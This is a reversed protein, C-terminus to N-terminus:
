TSDGTGEHSSEETEEAHTDERERWAKIVEAERAASLGSRRIPLSEDSDTEGRYVAEPGLRAQRDEPLTKFWDVTDRATEALPRFKLGAAVAKESSVLGFGEYGDAPAVWVPMHQWGHVGHKALFETDAWVFTADNWTAAKCGHLLEAITFRGAPTVTSFIGTINEELCRIVFAALDRVDIYQVPDDGSGPALVEGGRDIRVPWYTFRDTTDGPGVILGPRIVTVRGPMADEAAKECLAKLPGYTVGNVDKREYTMGDLENGDEDLLRGVPYTEDAYPTSHDAFASVSSIFVYQKVHDALLEASDKVNKPAYGSTDIVADWERGKLAELDGARDGVLKELEPFLHTNTRGRNFLTMSHGRALAAEVIHPGLFGTGGLILLNLKVDAEEPEAAPTIQAVGTPCIGILAIALMVILALRFSLEQNRTM